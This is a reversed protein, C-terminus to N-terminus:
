NGYYRRILKVFFGRKEYFDKCDGHKNADRNQLSRPENVGTFPNVFLSRSCNNIGYQCECKKCYVM